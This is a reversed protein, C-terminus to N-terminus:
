IFKVESKDDKDPVFTERALGPLCLRAEETLKVVDGDRAKIVSNAPEVLNDEEGEVVEIASLLEAQDQIIGYPGVAM